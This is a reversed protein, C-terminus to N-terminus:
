FQELIEEIVPKVEGKRGVTRSWLKIGLFSICFAGFGCIASVIDPDPREFYRSIFEKGIVAGIVLALAPIGYVIVSSRLYAYPKMIIRVKQGVHADVPNFAEIEMSQDDPRCTKLSCGECASKRPVSVTAFMGKISKIVGVEEVIEFKVM